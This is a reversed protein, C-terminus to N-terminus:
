QVAQVCYWLVVQVMSHSHAHSGCAHTASAVAVRQVRAQAVAVREAQESVRVGNAISEWM